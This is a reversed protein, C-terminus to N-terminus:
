GATFGSTNSVGLMSNEEPPLPLVPRLTCCSSNVQTGPAGYTADYHRQWVAPSLTESPLMAYCGRCITCNPHVRFKERMFEYISCFEDQPQSWVFRRTDLFELRRMLGSPLFRRMENHM